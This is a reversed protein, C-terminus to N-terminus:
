LVRSIWDSIELPFAGLTQGWVGWVIGVLTADLSGAAFQEVKTALAASVEDRKRLEQALASRVAQVEQRLASETQTVREDVLKLNEEVAKLRTSLSNDPAGHRVIAAASGGIMLSGTGTGVIVVGPRWINPFRRLWRAIRRRYSPKGFLKRTDRLGYVVFLIGLLTLAYGTARRHLEAAGPLRESAVMIVLPPVIALWFPVPDVVVWRWLARLRPLM